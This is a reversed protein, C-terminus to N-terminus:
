TMPIKPENGFFIIVNKKTEFCACKSEGYPTEVM